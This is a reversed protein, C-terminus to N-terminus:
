AEGVINELILELESLEIRYEGHELRYILELRELRKLATQIQAPDVQRGLQKSIRTLTRAGFLDGNKSRHEVIVGYILVDKGGRRGM